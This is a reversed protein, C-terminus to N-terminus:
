STKGPLLESEKYQSKYFIYEVYCSPTALVDQRCMPPNNASHADRAQLLLDPALLSHWRRLAISWGVSHRVPYPLIAQQSSELPGAFENLLTLTDWPLIM